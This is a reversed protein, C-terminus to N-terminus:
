VTPLYEKWNKTDIKTITYIRQKKPNFSWSVYSKIAWNGPAPSLWWLLWWVEQKFSQRKPMSLCYPQASRKSGEEFGRRGVVERTTTWSRCSLIVCHDKRNRKNGQQTLVWAHQVDLNTFNSKGNAYRGAAMRAGLLTYGRSGLYYSAYTRRDISSVVRKLM